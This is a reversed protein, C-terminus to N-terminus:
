SAERGGELWLATLVPSGMHRAGQSKGTEPFESRARSEGGGERERESEREGPQEGERARTPAMPWGAGWARSSAPACSAAARSIADRPALTTSASAALSSHRWASRPGRARSWRVTGRRGFDAQGSVISDVQGSAPAGGCPPSGLSLCDGPEPIRQRRVGQRPSNPANPSPNLSLPLSLVLGQGAGGGNGPGEGERLPADGDASPADRGRAGQSAPLQRRAAM